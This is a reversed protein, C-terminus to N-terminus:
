TAAACCSACMAGSSPTPSTRRSRSARATAAQLQLTGSTTRALPQSADHNYYLKVDGRVSEGFAGPAIRETFARGGEVLERSQENYVAAYGALTAGEVRQESLDLNRRCLV